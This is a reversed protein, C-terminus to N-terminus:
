SPLQGSPSKDANPDRLANKLQQYLEDAVAAARDAEAQAATPTIDNDSPHITNLPQGYPTTPGAFSGVRAM